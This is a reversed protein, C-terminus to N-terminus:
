KIKLVGKMTPHFTCIYAVDGKGKVEYKWTQGAEMFGSDFVGETASTATHPVLDKNVWIITDGAKVTVEAPDFRMNEINITHTKSNSDATLSVAGLLVFSLAAIITFLRM